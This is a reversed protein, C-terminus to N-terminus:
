ALTGTTMHRKRGFGPQRSVTFGAQALARRVHGAATYTAFTGGSATHRAVDTMLDPSWLEPNKAPSFGDLFWADAQGRWVPLTERADGLHITATLGPFELVTAGTEWQRLFSRAVGAVEPFAELARAIDPAPMPFAEFSTYHLHGPGRHALLVALLNLGTGFGLEAIRFGDRFRGPLGNGTLFVHRTEDLGGALSFYPDDFRRSVPIREDRWDLDPAPAPPQHPSAM